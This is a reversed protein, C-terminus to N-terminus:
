EIIMETGDRKLCTGHEQLKEILGKLDESNLKILFDHLPGGTIRAPAIESIMESIEDISTEM